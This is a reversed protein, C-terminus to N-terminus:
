RGTPHANHPDATVQDIIHHDVATFAEIIIDEGPRLMHTRVYERSQGTSTMLMNEVLTDIAIAMDLARKLSERNSDLVEGGHGYHTLIFAGPAATRHDGAALIVAAASAAMGSVHTNVMVPASHMASIINILTVISGGPSNIDIEIPLNKGKSLKLAENLEDRTEAGIEGHFYAQVFRYGNVEKIEASLTPTLLILLVALTKLM